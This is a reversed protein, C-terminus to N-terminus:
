GRGLGDCAHRDFRERTWTRAHRVLVHAPDLARLDRGRFDVQTVEADAGSSLGLVIYQRDPAFTLAFAAPSGMPGATPDPSWGSPPLDVPLAVTGARPRRTTWSALRPNPQDQELGARSGVVDITDVQDTCARVLLVPTGDADVSVAAMGVIDTTIANGCGAVLPAILFPVALLRLRTM